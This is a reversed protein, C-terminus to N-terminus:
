PPSPLYRPTRTSVVKKRECPFFACSNGVHPISNWDLWRSSVFNDGVVVGVGNNCRTFGQEFASGLCLDGPELYWSYLAIWGTRPFM